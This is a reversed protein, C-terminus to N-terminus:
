PAVLRVYDIQWTNSTTDGTRTTDYFRLDFTSGSLSVSFTNTTSATLSNTLLQWSGSWYYVALNEGSFAGTKIELQTYYTYDTVGSFQVELDLQYNPPSVSLVDVEHVRAWRDSWGHNNYFRLRVQNTTKSTFTVNVWAGTTPAGSFVNEWSSTGTNYVDIQMNNIDSSERTVYYRIKTGTTSSYSLTLWESWTGHTFDRESYTVTNDDYANAENNWNSSTYGTPSVWNEGGGVNAESLTDYSGDNQMNAFNSHSGVNIDHVANNTDVYHPLLPANVTVTVTNSTATAPTPASDTVTSYVSHSGLAATYTYTAATEGVVEVSDLYWKYSYPATGGSPTATFLQQQGVTM